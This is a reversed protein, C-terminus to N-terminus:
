TKQLRLLCCICLSFITTLQFLLFFFFLPPPPTPSPLTPFFSFYFFPPPAPSPLTPFFSFYFFFPPSLFPLILSLSFYFFLPLSIPSSLPFLSLLFYFFNTILKSNTTCKPPLEECTVCKRTRKESCRPCYEKRVCTCREKRRVCADCIRQTSCDGSHEKKEKCSACRSGKVCVRCNAMDRCKSCKPKACELRLGIAPWLGREQLVKQIGKQVKKKEGSTSLPDTEWLWMAQTVKEGTVQDRYWGPRLFGQQNGEGKGMNSVRLADKAYIAHSTANDFLFVLDYGPYLFQAPPLAKETVQHLLRTGDWYGDKGYELLERAEQSIGKQRGEEMKETSLHNMTLRGWPLLFDSVMIGQGKGKPRLFTDSEELWAYRKADNASFTSEDHTILILPRRQFGGVECDEPYAKDLINGFSDFDVLYPEDKKMQEVFRVRDAVVDKREHGDFFVGRKVERWKFGLKNLWKRATRSRIGSKKRYENPNETDQIGVSNITQQIQEVTEPQKQTDKLYSNM